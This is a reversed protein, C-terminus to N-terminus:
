THIINSSLGNIYPLSTLKASNDLLVPAFRPQVAYLRLPYLIQFLCDMTQASDSVSFRPGVDGLAMPPEYGLEARKLLPVPVINTRRGRNLRINMM